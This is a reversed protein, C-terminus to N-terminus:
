FVNLISRKMHRGVSAEESWKESEIYFELFVLVKEFLSTRISVGRPPVRRPPAQDNQDNEKPLVLVKSLTSSRGANKYHSVSGSAGAQM